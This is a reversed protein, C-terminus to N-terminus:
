EVAHKCRRCALWLSHLITTVISIPLLIALIDVFRFLVRLYLWLNRIHEMVSEVVISGGSSMLVVLSGTMMNAVMPLIVGLCGLLLLVMSLKTVELRERCPLKRWIALLLGALVFSQILLLLYPPGNIWEILLLSYSKLLTNLVFVVALFFLYQRFLM